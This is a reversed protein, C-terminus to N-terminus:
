QVVELRRRVAEGRAALAAPLQPFLLVPYKTALLLADRPGQAAVFAETAASGDCVDLWYTASVSSAEALVRGGAAVPTPERLRARVAEVFARLEPPPPTDLRARRAHEAGEASYWECLIPAGDSVEFTFYRLDQLAIPAHAVSVIEPSTSVASWTANGG